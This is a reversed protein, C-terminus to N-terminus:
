VDQFKLTNYFYAGNAEIAGRQPIKGIGVEKSELAAHAAGGAFSLAWLADKEKLLTCCFASTFIDGVGVTDYVDVNPLRLSYRKNKYIMSVDQKNTYLVHPVKKHIELAGALGELGTLYYAEKPDVKIASIGTLDLNTKEFFVRNESDVRRLFGQPDLFVENSDKKIADLTSPSIEHFVPSVLIGDASVKKYPIEECTDQLWLVRETGNIELTFRTTPRHSEANELRIKKEAFVDAYAYGSGFKTCLEVDFNFRRAVLGCYFAPGGALEYTNGGIKIVDVTCHSFIGLRM